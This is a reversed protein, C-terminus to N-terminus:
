RKAKYEKVKKARSIYQVPHKIGKCIDDPFCLNYSRLTKCSPVSYKKRGGRMGLIHEVQYRTREVNFDPVRSFLNIIEETNYGMKGLFTVLTFRAAHPLGVGINQMMWNICPPYMERNKTTLVERIEQSERIKELIDRVDHLLRDSYVRIKNPIGTIREIDDIVIDKVLESIIRALRRKDIVVYGNNVRYYYAKWRPSSFRSTIKVYELFPIGFERGYSEIDIGLRNVLDIIAFNDEFLLLKYARKSESDAFMWYLYRNDTGRVILVALFYSIAEIEDNKWVPAKRTKMLLARDYAYEMIHILDESFYEDVDLAISKLYEKSLPDFPYKATWRATNKKTV